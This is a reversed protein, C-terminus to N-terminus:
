FFLVVVVFCGKFFPQSHHKPIPFKSAKDAQLREGRWAESPVPAHPESVMVAM